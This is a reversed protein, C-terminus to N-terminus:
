ERKGSDTKLRRVLEPNPTLGLRRCVRLDEWARAYDRAQYFAAARDHYAAAFGPKAAIAADYDQIAERYSGMAQYAHARNALAEAYGARLSIARSFDGLARDYQGKAASLNGRNNYAEAYAPKMEIARSYDALARDADGLAQFSNARNFYSDVSDPNLALARTYHGIATEHDGKEACAVGLNQYAGSHEGKRVSDSFLSLSDHWRPINELTVYALVAITLVAGVVLANVGARTKPVLSRVTWALLLGIGISPLYTYRDAVWTSGIPVVGIVPFLVGLFWFWGVVLWPRTRAWLLAAVTVALILVFAIAVRGTFLPTIPYLVNLNDPWFIKGLYFLCNDPVRLIQPAGLESKAVAGASSQALITITGFAASLLFLPIKEIILVPLTAKIEVWSSGMRGLPWFDLLLLLLPVTVLMPKAMLGFLLCLFTITGRARGAKGAFHSYSALTLMFFLGSLVDKREAIWIVSEVRLPHLAFFLAVFASLWLERTLMVLALFLLSASAAHLLINTAHYGAANDGWVSADLLYSLWTLPMWSGGEVTTFAYAIGRLTLGRNVQPNATAYMDDDLNLFGCRTAGWFVSLTLGGILAALLLIKHGTPAQGTPINQKHASM